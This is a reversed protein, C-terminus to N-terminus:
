TLWPGANWAASGDIRTSSVSGVWRIQIAAGVPM